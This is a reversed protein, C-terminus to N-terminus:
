RVVEQVSVHCIKRGLGARLLSAREPYDHDTGTKHAKGGGNCQATFTMM